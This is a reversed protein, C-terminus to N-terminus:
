VIYSITAKPFYTHIMDKFYESAKERIDVHYCYKGRGKPRMINKDFVDIVGKLAAQNITMNAYGFTMFILEFFLNNKLDEDLKNALLLFLEKYMSQWNDLLIIPAINVGIKYGARHMKNAANIRDILSSTGIEIKRIIFDPNVSIRMQTNGNHNADLLDDVMSFKTAFTCKANELKGFQEIAWKLNGTITNELVMDSTSGIEYTKLQNVQKIKKKVSQMMEDRNVFM